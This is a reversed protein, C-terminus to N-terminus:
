PDVVTTSGYTAATGPMRGAKELAEAVELPMYNEDHKALVESAVFTGSEDLAGMAVVGQGERFLDPLIGEFVVPVSERTDTVRFRVGLDEGGREVSGDVVMGGIRFRRGTEVVGAAIDSPPHFLMINSRFAQLGFMVAAGAACVMLGVLM